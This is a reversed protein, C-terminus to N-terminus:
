SDMMAGIKSEIMIGIKQGFVNGLTAGILIPAFIEPAANFMVFYKYTLFTIGGNILRACLHYIMNNRNSARSSVIYTMSQSGYVLAGFVFMTWELDSPVFFYSLLLFTILLWWDKIFLRVGTFDTSIQINEDPKFNFFREIRISVGAGTISGLVTAVTYPVFLAFSMNNKVLYGFTLFWVIWSLVTTVILYNHSGRNKARSSLGMMIHNVYALPLITLVVAPNDSFVISCVGVIGLVVFLIYKKFYVYNNKVSQKIQKTADATLNLWGEIKRSIYAGFLSGLTTGTIFPIIMTYTLENIVLLRFTLFWVSNSFVAAILHYNHSNRNRARSIVSFSINQAFALLLLEAHVIMASTTGHWFVSLLALIVVSAIPVFKTKQM